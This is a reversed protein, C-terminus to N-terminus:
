DPFIGPMRAAILRAATGGMLQALAAATVGLGALRQAQEGAPVPNNPADSGFLLRGAWREIGAATLAVPSHWVPTLDGYLNAFREMLATARATAPHGTHALVMPLDPHAALVPVLDDLEDAATEGPGRRGAHIVVPVRLRAATEWLPTLAPDTPVFGGVSCHLKVVRLGLEVLARRVLRDNDPDAPHFTAGAVLWPFRAVAAASWENVSEAVGARHAYPLVWAADFGQAKVDAALDPLLPSGTLSGARSLSDRVARALRDPFGHVHADIRPAPANAQPIATM